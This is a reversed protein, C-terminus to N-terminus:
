LRRWERMAFGSNPDNWMSVRFSGYRTRIITGTPYLWPPRRPYRFIVSM